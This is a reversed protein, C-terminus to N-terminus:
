SIRGEAPAWILALRRPDAPLDQPIAVSCRERKQEKEVALCIDSGSRGDAEFGVRVGQLRQGSLEIRGGDIAVTVSDAEIIPHDATVRLAIEKAQPCGSAHPAIRATVEYGPAVDVRPRLRKRAADVVFGQPVDCAVANGPLAVFDS